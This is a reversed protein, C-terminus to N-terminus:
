DTTKLAELDRPAVGLDQWNEPHCTFLLVQHRSAADFLIRKMQDLRQRDSHVLTDDLIILTPRGAEQLLDAYALRSILGMQERAGFSLDLVDGTEQGQQGARTLQGPILNDDVDLNAKPFLVGLYHNLHKQLPAQLRRTLAKRKEQLLTLLLDLAEARRRLETYRRVVHELRAAMEERQEELGEAGQSELKSELSALELAEQQHSRELQEASAKFRAMDQQLLEPRAEDIQEQRKGVSQQLRTEREGAEAIQTQLSQEAAQREPNELERKLQQWEAQANELAQTAAFLQKSHEQLKGDAERLQQEAMDLAAEASTLSLPEGPIESLAKQESQLQELRRTFEQQQSELVDVGQPAISALLAELRQITEKRQAQQEALKGAQEPSDVKMSKLQNDYSEQLRELQRQVRALDDGGPTITLEGIGPLALTTAELLLEDGEGQLSQGNLTLAQGSELAYHLRTAIAQSRIREQELQRQTKRLAELAELDLPNAQQQNRTEQHEAQHARAKELNKGLTELQLRLQKIDNDLRNCQEQEKAVRVQQRAKDYAKRAQQQAVTVQEERTKLTNVTEKCHALTQERENLKRAAVQSQQQQRRLLELTQRCDDLAQQERKQEQQWQEIERFRNEAEQQSQRAAEWPREQENRQHRQRLEGLRDVMSQYHAVREDLAELEAALQSQEESLRAYDGRPKGTATLLEARQAQVQQIVDDGGSSAVEGLLSNLASKLHDGAYAVADHVNQGSGQEVWLLGPIGWHKDQSAGRPAFQFGLLDALKDEAEEGSYSEGAVQLDCRKQQLFRKRLQWQVGQCEFDLEVSPAASSDGWPRLDDVSSSRHREFFAARIARVLTSKGSENPGHILNLGPGLENLELPQRFQRLQELRLRQLKM